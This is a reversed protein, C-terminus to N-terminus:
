VDSWKQKVDDPIDAVAWTRGDYGDKQVGIAHAIGGMFNHHGMMPREYESVEVSKMSVTNDMAYQARRLRKTNQAGKIYTELFGTFEAFIIPDKHAKKTRAFWRHCAEKFNWIAQEAGHATPPSKLGPLQLARALTIAKKGCYDNVLMDLFEQRSIDGDGNKDAELFLKKIRQIRKYMARGRYSAQIKAAADSEQKSPAPAKPGEAAPAPAAKNNSASCAGGM